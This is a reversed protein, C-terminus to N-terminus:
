SSLIIDSICHEYYDITNIVPVIQDMLEWGRTVISMNKDGDKRMSLMYGNYIEGDSDYYYTKDNFHKSFVDCLVDKIKDLYESKYVSVDCYVVDGHEADCISVDNNLRDELDKWDM